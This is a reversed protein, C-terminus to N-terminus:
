IRPIEITVKNVDIEAEQNNEINNPNEQKLCYFCCLCTNIIIGFLEALIIFCKFLTYVYGINPIIVSILETRLCHRNENHKNCKDLDATYILYQNHIFLGAIVIFIIWFIYVLCIDSKTLQDYKKDFVNIKKGLTIFCNCM